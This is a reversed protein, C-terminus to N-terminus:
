GLMSKMHTLKYFLRDMLKKIAWFDFYYMAFITQKYRICSIKDSHKSLYWKVDLCFMTQISEYPLDEM